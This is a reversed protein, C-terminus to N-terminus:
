FEPCWQVVLAVSSSKAYYLLLDKDGYAKFIDPFNNKSLIWPTAFNFVLGVKIPSKFFSTEFRMFMPTDIINGGPVGGWSTILSEGDKVLSLDNGIGAAIRIKWIDFVANLSFRLKFPKAESLRYTAAVDVLAFSYRFGIDVGYAAGSEYGSMFGSGEFEHILGFDMEADTAVLVMPIMLLMLFVVILKKM